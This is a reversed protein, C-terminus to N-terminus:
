GDSLVEKRELAEALERLAMVFPDYMRNDWGPCQCWDGWTDIVARCKLELDQNM